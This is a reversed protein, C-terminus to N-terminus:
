MKEHITAETFVGRLLKSHVQIKRISSITDEDPILDM